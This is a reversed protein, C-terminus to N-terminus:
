GIVAVTAARRGPVAVDHFVVDRWFSGFEPVGREIRGVGGDLRPDSIALRSPEIFDSHGLARLLATKRAWLTARALAAEDAALGRLAAREDPHLAAEDIVAGAALAVPEVAGGLPHRTGTAAVIADGHIAVDAYRPSGSATLPYAVTVRGHRAGCRECAHVLEVDGAPVAATEAVLARLVADAGPHRRSGAVVRVRVGTQGLEIPEDDPNVDM